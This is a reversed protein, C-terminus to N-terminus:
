EWGVLLPRGKIKNIYQTTVGLSDIKKISEDISTSPSEFPVEPNSDEKIDYHAILAGEVKVFGLVKRLDELHDWFSEQGNDM